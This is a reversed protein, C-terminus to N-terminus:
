ITVLGRKVAQAIAAGRDHVGLKGYVASLHSKITSESLHLQRGIEATSCGRAALDLVGLERESLPTIQAAVQVRIEAAVATQLQRSVVTEGRSAAHVAHCIEEPALSKSLYGCAGLGLARYISPGREDGSLIVVAARTGATVLRNLVSMGDLRPLDLDLLVVDPALAPIRKAADEGDGMSAVVRLLEDQELARELALRFLPHDEVIVVRM